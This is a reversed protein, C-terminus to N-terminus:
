NRPPRSRYTPLRWGFLLSGARLAFAAVVCVVYADVRSAGLALAGVAAGAGALAATVYLEGQRLVMPVENCVVDRMLGGFCGTMVGMVLTVTVGAGAEMAASVGATVAVPLALADVWDLARRRSAIWPAWFFMLAGGAAAVALNAPDAIWFVPRDLIVDRVTGGGVATLTAIFLFGVPDLQARSAALGGSLAFVFVSLFDLAEAPTM